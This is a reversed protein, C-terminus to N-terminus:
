FVSTDMAESHRCPLADAVPSASSGKQDLVSQKMEGAQPLDNQFCAVGMWAEVGDCMGWENRM